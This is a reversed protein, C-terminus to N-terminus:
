RRLRRRVLALAALGGLSAAMLLVWAGANAPDSTQPTAPASPAAPTAPTVPTVPTDQGGGQDPDAPQDPATDIPKLAAIADLIAQAMGDVKDQNRSGMGYVVADVAQTLAQVSEPTYASIDAPAQDLAQIVKTYDAPADYLFVFTSTCGAADTVAVTNEAGARLLATDPAYTEAAASYANDPQGNVLVSAIGQADTVTLLLETYYGDDQVSGPAAAIVPALSVEFALNEEDWLLVAGEPANALTYDTATKNSNGPAKVLVHGDALQGTVWVPIQQKHVSYKESVTLTADAPMWLEFADGATVSLKYLQADGELVLGGVADGASNGTRIVGLQAADGSVRVWSGNLETAALNEIRGALDIPEDKTGFGTLILDTLKSGISSATGTVKGFQVGDGLFVIDLWRSGSVDAISGVSGKASEAFTLAKEGNKSRMYKIAAEGMDLTIDQVTLSNQVKLVGNAALHLTHGGGITLAVDPLTSDAPLTVDTLLAVTYEANKDAADLAETMEQWTAFGKNSWEGGTVTVIPERATQLTFNGSEDRLLELGAAQEAADEALVFADPAAAAATVLTAEEKVLASGQAFHIQTNGSVTGSGMVTMKGSKLTLDATAGEAVQWSRVTLNGTPALGGAQRVEVAGWNIPTGAPVLWSNQLILAGYGATNISPYKSAPADPSGYGALTVAIKKGSTGGVADVVKDSVPAELVAYVQAAEASIKELGYAAGSAATVSGEVTVTIGDARLRLYTKPMNLQVDALTLDATADVYNRTRKDGATLTHGDGDITLARAPLTVVDYAGSKGDAELTVDTLLTVTYAANEDAADLAETMEQWTAFGQPTTWAGGTVTVIPEATPAAIAEGNQNTLTVESGAPLTLRAGDLETGAYEMLAFSGEASEAVALSAGEPIRLEGEGSLAALTAEGTVRLGGANLAVSLGSGLADAALYAGDLTLGAFGTMAPLDYYYESRGIGAFTVRANEGTGVLRVAQGGGFAGGPLQETFTLDNGRIEAFGFSGGGIMAFAHEGADLTTLVGTDSNINTINKLTLPARLTLSAPLQVSAGSFDIVTEKNPVTNEPWVITSNELVTLTFPGSASSANVAEIAEGLSACGATAGAGDTITVLPQQTSGGYLQVTVGKGAFVGAFHEVDAQEKLNLTVNQTSGFTTAVLATSSIDCLLNLTFGDPMNNLLYAQIGAGNLAYVTLEQISSDKFASNNYKSSLNLSPISLKTLSTCGSFVGAELMNTVSDEAFRVDALATCGRFCYKGITSVSSASMDVSTLAANGDFASDDLETVDYTGGEYEMGDALVLAGAYTKGDTLTLAGSRTGSPLRTVEYTIGGIVITDGVQPAAKPQPAEAPQAPAAPAEGPTAATLSQAAAPQAANEAQAPEAPTQADPAEEPQGAAPRQEPEADPQATETVAAPAAPEGAEEALAPMPLTGAALALALVFALPRSLGNRRKM